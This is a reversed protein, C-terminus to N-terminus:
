NFPNVQLFSTCVREEEVIDKFEAQFHERSDTYQKRIGENLIVEVASSSWPQRAGPHELRHNTSLSVYGTYRLNRRNASNIKLKSKRRNPAWNTVSTGISLCYNKFYAEPNTPLDGVFFSPNGQMKWLTELDEWELDEALLKEQRLAHYLQTVRLLARPTAAYPGGSSHLNSRM